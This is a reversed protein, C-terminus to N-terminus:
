KSSRFASLVVFYPMVVGDIDLSGHPIGAAQFVAAIIKRDSM